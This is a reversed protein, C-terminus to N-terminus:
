SLSLRLDETVTKKGELVDLIGSFIKEGLNGDHNEKIPFDVGLIRGNPATGISYLPSIPTGFLGGNGTIYLNLIAGFEMMQYLSEPEQNTGLIQYLGQTEIPYESLNYVKFNSKGVKLISGQSKEIINPIGGARNGDNLATSLEEDSCTNMYTMWKSFDENSVRDRYFADLGVTEQPENFVVSFGRDILKDVVTGVIPNIVNQSKKTSGGCKISILVHELSVEKRRNQTSCALANVSRIVENRVSALDVTDVVLEKIPVFPKSPLSFTECGMRVILGGIVNPHNLFRSIRRTFLLPNNCDNRNLIFSVMDLGEYSLRSIWELCPATLVVIVTRRSGFGNPNDYLSVKRKM